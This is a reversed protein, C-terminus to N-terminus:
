MGSLLRTQYKKPTEGTLQKFNAYFSSESKYGCEVAISFITDNKREQDSLIKKAEEVRHYNLFVTFSVKLYHNLLRSIHRYPVGLMKALKKESMDSDRYVRDKTFATHIQEACRKVEPEDIVPIM